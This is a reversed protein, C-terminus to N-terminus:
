EVGPTEQVIEAVRRNYGLLQWTIEGLEEQAQPGSGLELPM